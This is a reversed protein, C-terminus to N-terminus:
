VNEGALFELAHIQPPPQCCAKSPPPPAKSSKSSGIASPNQYNRPSAMPFLRDHSLRRAVNSGRTTRFCLRRMMIAENYPIERRRFGALNLVVSDNNLHLRNALQCCQPRLVLFHETVGPAHMREVTRVTVGTGAAADFSPRGSKVYLLREVEHPTM